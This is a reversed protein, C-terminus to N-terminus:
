KKARRLHRRITANLKISQNRYYDLEYQNLNLKAKLIVAYLSPLMIILGIFITQVIEVM